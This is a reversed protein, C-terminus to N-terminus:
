VVDEWEINISESSDKAEIWSEGCECVINSLDSTMIDEWGENGTPMSMSYTCKTHDHGGKFGYRTERTSLHDEFITVGIWSLSSLQQIKVVPINCSHLTNYKEYETFFFDVAKDEIYLQTKNLTERQNQNFKPIHLLRSVDSIDLDCKRYLEHLADYVFTNWYNIIPYLSIEASFLRNLVKDVNQGEINILWSVSPQIITGDEYNIGPDSILLQIEANPNNKILQHLPIHHLKIDVQIQVDTVIGLHYGSINTLGLDHQIEPAQSLWVRCLQDKYSSLKTSIITRHQCGTSLLLSETVTANLFFRTVKGIRAPQSLLLNDTHTWVVSRKFDERFITKPCEFSGPIYLLHDPFDGGGLNGWMRVTRGLKVIEEQRTRSHIRRSSLLVSHWTSIYKIRQSQLRINIKDMEFVSQVLEIDNRSPRLMNRDLVNWNTDPIVYSKHSKSRTHAPTGISLIIILHRHSDVYCEAIRSYKGEKKFM